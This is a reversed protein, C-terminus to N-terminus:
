EWCGVLAAEDGLIDSYRGSQAWSERWPNKSWPAPTLGSQACYETMSRVMDWGPVPVM